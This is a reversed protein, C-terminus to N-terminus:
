SWDQTMRNVGAGKAGSVAFTAAPAAEVHNRVM